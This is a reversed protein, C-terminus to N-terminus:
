HMATWDGGCTVHVNHQGRHELLWLAIAPKKEVIAYMLPTMDWSSEREELVAGDTVMCQQMFELEGRKIDNFIPHDDEGFDDHFDAEEEEVDDLIARAGPGHYAVAAFPIFHLAPDDTSSSAAEQPKLPSHISPFSLNLAPLHLVTHDERLHM